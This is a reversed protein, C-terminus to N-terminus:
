DVDIWDIEDVLFYDPQYGYKNAWEIISKEIVDDLKDMDDTKIYNLYDAAFEGHNAYHVDSIKDIVYDSLGNALIDVKRVKGVYFSLGAFEEYIKGFEIADEKTRFYEYENFYEDDQSITWKGENVNLMKGDKRFNFKKLSYVFFQCSFLLTCMSVSVMVPSSSNLAHSYILIFGILWFISAGFGIM